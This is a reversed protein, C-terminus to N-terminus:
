VDSTEDDEPPQMRRLAENRAREVEAVIEGIRSVAGNRADEVQAATRQIHERARIQSQEVQSTFEAINAIAADSADQAESATKAIEQKKKEVFSKIGAKSGKVMRRFNKVVAKSNTELYAGLLEHVAKITESKAANDIRFAFVVFLGSIVMGFFAIFGGLIAAWFTLLDSASDTFCCGSSSVISVAGLPLAILTVVGVALISAVVVFYNLPKQKPLKGLYTFLPRNDIRRRRGKSPDPNANASKGANEEENPRDNMSM